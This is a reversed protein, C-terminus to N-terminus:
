KFYHFKVILSIKSDTLIAIKNIINSNQQTIKEGNIVMIPLTVRIKRNNKPNIVNLSIKEDNKLEIKDVVGAIIKFSSRIKEVNSKYATKIVSIVGSTIQSISEDVMDRVMNRSILYSTIGFCLFAVIAISCIYILIKTKLKIYM